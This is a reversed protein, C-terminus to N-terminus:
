KQPGHSQIPNVPTGGVPFMRNPNPLRTLTTYKTTVKSTKSVKVTTHFVAQEHSGLCPLLETLM